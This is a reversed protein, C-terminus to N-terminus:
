QDTHAATNQQPQRHIVSLLVCLLKAVTGLVAGGAPATGLVDRREDIRIEGLIKQECVGLAQCQPLDRVWFLPIHIQIYQNQTAGAGTLGAIMDLRVKQLHVCRIYARVRFTRDHFFHSLNEDLFSM